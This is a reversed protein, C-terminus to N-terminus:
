QAQAALYRHPRSPNQWKALSRINRDYNISFYLKIKYWFNPM